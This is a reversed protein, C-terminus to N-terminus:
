TQRGRVTGEHRQRGIGLIDGREWVRHREDRAGIGEGRRRKGNGNYGKKEVTERMADMGRCHGWRECDGIERRKRYSEGIVFIGCGGGRVLRLDLPHTSSRAGVGPVYSCWEFYM